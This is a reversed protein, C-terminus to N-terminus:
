GNTKPVPISKFCFCGTGFDLTNNCGHTELAAAAQTCDLHVPDFALALLLLLVLSEKGVSTLLLNGRVLRM